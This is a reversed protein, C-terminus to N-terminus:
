RRHPVGAVEDLGLLPHRGMMEKWVLTEAPLRETDAEIVGSIGLGAVVQPLAHFRVVVVVPDFQPPEVAAFRLHVRLLRAVEEKRSAWSGLHGVEVGALM